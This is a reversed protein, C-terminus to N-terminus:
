ETQVAATTVRDSTSWYRKPARGYIRKFANGFASESAYGLHAAVSAVTDDRHLAQRALQMPWRLLYDLPPVGVPNKFRLAFGSRSMGVARALEEVRWPRAVDGHMLGLAAGIRPNALAGIWGTSDDGQVVVYARLAQVLLVDALRRTVLSAGMRGSRVEHDVIELTGRLIAASPNDAPILM